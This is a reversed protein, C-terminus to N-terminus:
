TGALMAQIDNIYKNTYKYPFRLIPPVMEKYPLAWELRPAPEGDDHSFLEAGWLPDPRTKRTYFTMEHANNAVPMKKTWMLIYIRGTIGKDRANNIALELQRCVHKGVEQMTEGVDQPPMSWSEILQEGLTKRESKTKM